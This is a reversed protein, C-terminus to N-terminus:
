RTRWRQMKGANEVGTGPLRQMRSAQDGIPRRPTRLGSCGTREDIRSGKRSSDIARMMSLRSMAARSGRDDGEGRREM